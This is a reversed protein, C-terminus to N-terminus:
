EVVALAIQFPPLCVMLLLVTRGSTQRPLSPLGRCPLKLPLLQTSPSPHASRTGLRCPLSNPAICQEIYALPELPATHTSRASSLPAATSASHQHKNRLRGQDIM